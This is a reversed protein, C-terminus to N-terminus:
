RGSGEVAVVWWLHNGSIAYHEIELVSGYRDAKFHLYTRRRPDAAHAESQSALSSDIGWVGYTDCVTIHARPRTLDGTAPSLDCTIKEAEMGTRVEPRHHYAGEGALAPSLSAVWTYRKGAILRRIRETVAQYNATTLYGFWDRHPNALAIADRKAEDTQALDFAAREAEPAHVWTDAREACGERACWGFQADVTGLSPAVFQHPEPKGVNGTMRRRAEYVHVFATEEPTLDSSM